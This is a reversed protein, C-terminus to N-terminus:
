AVDRAQRQAIPANAPLEPPRVGNFAVLDTVLPLGEILCFAEMNVIYAAADEEDMLLPLLKPNSMRSIPLFSGKM